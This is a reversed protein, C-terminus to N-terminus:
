GEAGRERLQQRELVLAQLAAVIELKRHLTAGQLQAKLAQEQRVIEVVRRATATADAPLRRAPRLRGHAATVPAM